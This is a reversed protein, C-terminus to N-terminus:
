SRAEIATTPHQLGPVQREAEPMRYRSAICFAIALWAHTTALYGATGSFALAGQTMALVGLGLALAAFSRPIRHTSPNPSWFGAVLPLLVAVILGMYALGVVVGYRAIIDLYDSHMGFVGYYENTAIPNFGGLGVIWAPLSSQAAELLASASSIRTGGSGVQGTFQDISFRDLILEAGIGRVLEGLDTLTLVFLLALAAVTGGFRAPRSVFFSYILVIALAVIGIRSLSGAVCISALFLSLVVGVSDLRRKTAGMSVFLWWFAALVALQAVAGRFLGLFGFGYLIKINGELLRDVANEVDKLREYVVLDIGGLYQMAGFALLLLCQLAALRAVAVPDATRMDRILIGVAAAVLLSRYLLSILVVSHFAYYEPDVFFYSLPAYLLPLLLVIFGILVAPRQPRVIGRSLLEVFILMPVVLDFLFVMGVDALPAYAWLPCTVFASSILVNLRLPINRRLLVSVSAVCALQLLFLYLFSSGSMM